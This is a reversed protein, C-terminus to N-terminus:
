QQNPPPYEPQQQVHNQQESPQDTAQRDEAVVQVPAIQDHDHRQQQPCNADFNGAQAGTNEAPDDNKGENQGEGGRQNSSLIGGILVVVGARHHLEVGIM